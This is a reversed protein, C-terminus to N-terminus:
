SLLMQIESTGTTSCAKRLGLSHFGLTVGENEHQMCNINEVLQVNVRKKRLCWRVHEGTQVIDGCLGRKRCLVKLMSIIFIVTRKLVSGHSHLDMRMGQLLGETM